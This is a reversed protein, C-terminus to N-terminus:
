VSDKTIYKLWEEIEWTNYDHNDLGGPYRATEMVSNRCANHAMSGIAPGWGDHDSFQKYERIVEEIDDVLYTVAAAECHDYAIYPSFVIAFRSNRAVYSRPGVEEVTFGYREFLNIMDDYM